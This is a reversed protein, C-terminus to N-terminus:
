KYLSEGSSAIVSVIFIRGEEAVFFFSNKILKVICIFLTIFLFIYFDFLYIKIMSLMHIYFLFFHIVRQHRKKIVNLNYTLEVRKLFLISECFLISYSSLVSFSFLNNLAFNFLMERYM